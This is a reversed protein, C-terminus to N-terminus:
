FKFDATWHHKSKDRLFKQNKNKYFEKLKNMSYFKKERIFFKISIAIYSLYKFFNTTALNFIFKMKKSLLSHKLFEQYQVRQKENDKFHYFLSITLLYLPFNNLKIIPHREFFQDKKLELYTDVLFSYYFRTNIESWSTPINNPEEFNESLIEINYLALRDKKKLLMIAYASHPIPTMEFLKQNEEKLLMDKNKTSVFMCANGIYYIPIKNHNNEVIKFTDKKINQFLQKYGIFKNLGFIIVEALNQNDRLLNVGKILSDLNVKDDDGIFYYYKGESLLITKIINKTMGINNKNKSIKLFNGYRDLHKEFIHYIDFDSNNDIVLLELVEALSNKEIFNCFINVQKLIQDKRNYTPIGITLLKSM